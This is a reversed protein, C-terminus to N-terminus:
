RLHQNFSNQRCHFSKQDEMRQIRTLKLVNEQVLTLKTEVLALVANQPSTNKIPAYALYESLEITLRKHM